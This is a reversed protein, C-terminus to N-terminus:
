VIRSCDVPNLFIERTMTTRSFRKQQKDIGPAQRHRLHQGYFEAYRVLGCGCERCSDPPVSLQASFTAIIEPRVDQIKILTQCSIVFSQSTIDPGASCPRSAPPVMLSLM